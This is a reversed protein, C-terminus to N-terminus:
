ATKDAEPQIEAPPRSDVPSAGSVASIDGTVADIQPDVVVKPNTITVASPPTAAPTVAPADAVVANLPHSARAAECADHLAVFQGLSTYGQASRWESMADRMAEPPKQGVIPQNVTFVEHEWGDHGQPYPHIKQDMEGRLERAHDILVSVIKCGHYWRVSTYKPDPPTM